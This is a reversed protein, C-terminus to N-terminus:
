IDVGEAIGWKEVSLLRGLSCWRVSIGDISLTLMDLAASPNEQLIADLNKKTVVAKFTMNM